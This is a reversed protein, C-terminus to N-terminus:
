MGQLADTFQDSAILPLDFGVLVADLDHLLLLNLAEGFFAGISFFKRVVM